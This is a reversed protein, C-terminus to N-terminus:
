RHVRVGIGMFYNIDALQQGNGRKKYVNKIREIM